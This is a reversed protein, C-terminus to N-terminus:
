TNTWGGPSAGVVPPGAGVRQRKNPVDGGGNEMMMDQQSGGSSAAVAAPNPHHDMVGGGGGGGYSGGGSLIEMQSRAVADTHSRQQQCQMNPDSKDPPTSPECKISINPLSPNTQVPLQAMNSPLLHQSSAALNQHQWPQVISSLSNSSPPVFGQYDSPYSPHPHQIPHFPISPTSLTVIPTSLQGGDNGQEMAFNNGRGPIVVHLDTNQVRKNINSAGGGSSSGGGGRAGPSSPGGGHKGSSGISMPSTREQQQQQQQQQHQLNQINPQHPHQQQPPRALFGNGTPSRRPSHTLPSPPLPSKRSGAAGHASGPYLLNPDAALKVQQDMQHHHHHAGPQHGTFVPVSVPLAPYAPHVQAPRLSNLMEDFERNINEYHKITGPTPLQATPHDVDPSDCTKDKKNLMEIIDANTRSEHPENYETYKLLVKDMDTSAYQFLKNSGNFIILAIECDCLVSLEYAKKMLGFKRKTFTVQRNREDCIRSIQIKKRGM